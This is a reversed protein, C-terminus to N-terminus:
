LTDRTVGFCRSGQANRHARIEGQSDLGASTGCPCTVRQGTRGGQAPAVRGMRAIQSGFIAGAEMHEPMGVQDPQQWDRPGDVNWFGYWGTRSPAASERYLKAM